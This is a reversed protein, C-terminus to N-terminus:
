RHKGVIRSGHVAVTDLEPIFSFDGCMIHLLYHENCVPVFYNWLAERTVHETEAHDASQETRLAITM